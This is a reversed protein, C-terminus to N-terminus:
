ECALFASQSREGKSTESSLEAILEGVKGLPNALKKHLLESLRLRCLFDWEPASLFDERGVRTELTQNSVSSYKLCRVNCSISENSSIDEGKLAKAVLSHIRIGNESFARLVFNTPLQPFSFTFACPSFPSSFKTTLSSNFPSPPCDM